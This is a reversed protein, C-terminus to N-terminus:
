RYSELKCALRQGRTKGGGWGVRSRTSSCHALQCSFNPTNQGTGQGGSSSSPRGTHSAVGLLCCASGWTSEDYSVTVSRSAATLMLSVANVCSAEPERHRRPVASARPEGVMGGEHGTVLEASWLQDVTGGVILM